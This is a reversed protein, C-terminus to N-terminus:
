DEGRTAAVPALLNEVPAFDDTLVIGRSRIELEDMHMKSYPIPEVLRDKAFFQPDGERGGLTDLDLPVKSVVVVFTERLGSGPDNDTGFVYVNPFTERATKVWAGLFGGFNTAIAMERRKEAELAGPPPNTLKKVAAEAKQNAVKDSEYVDIINIMYVGDPEMMKALKENFERTTLHWPVSFDNFADGFIIDFQKRDQNREVFQRADGWHTVIPTDRPLGLARFNAETVAPDIEAVEAVSGPYKNLIYRQFTYAGGGLFMTKLATADAAKPDKRAKAKARAVRDAVLAYIHEYDYDLREPHDLIFYGHILNDLVLTRKKGDADNENEVKIYYYNSEDLWAIADNKDTNPDGAEERIGWRDAQLRLMPIPVFSIICLGLPIGAWVAHWTTGIVTAALAMITALLVLVGKTGLVDILLFGTLFTGLISGVMGWAYVVGIAGGTRKTRQVRDVALKAMVPSVTGLAVSPLFFALGTVIFLRVGWPVGTMTIASSLISSAGKIIPEREKGRLLYGIPNWVLWRPPSELLLVSLLLASAFLFLWSAQKESKVFDAFKGGFFNGLSLGGLLVGIISTWGYISSGLHRSVLRGAAMEFSMFALSILFSLIALDTLKPRPPAEGMVQDEAPAEAPLKAQILRVLGVVALGLAAVHGGLAIPNILIGGITVGKIPLAQTLPAISGLGLLATAILGLIVGIKEGILFTAMLALGAAVLTVITTTPAYKMLVFGALFTGAISGVAGMFYVDGIASGAKRAQEVALKAVVPGIMGLVTGPILFDISVLAVTRFWNPVGEEPIYAGIANLWLCGLTLASGLAYLPGIVRAPDSRDALRGGLVNGLCIGGLMIGIVSTWVNLSAGVHRAVLRSAVLELIMICLSGFFALSYPLFRNRAALGNM